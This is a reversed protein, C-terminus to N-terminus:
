LDGYKLPLRQDLFRLKGSRTKPIEEVAVLELQTDIGLKPTLRDRLRQLESPSLPRRPVFRFVVQGPTDQYFQFQRLGDFIDDHMNIATMSVYRGSGTLIVEQLRGEIRNLLPFARGCAECGHPGVQAMDMTRYRIFPTALGWFSTGVLEGIQGEPTPGNLADLVETYGYFPWVHYADSHECMAAM